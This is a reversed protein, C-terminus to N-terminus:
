VSKELEAAREESIGLSDRLRNLLKRDRPSMEGDSLVEKVSDLYEKEDDSLKPKAMDEIEAARATSINYRRCLRDLFKRATGDIGEGDELCFKVEELYKSEMESLSDAQSQSPKQQANGKGGASSDDKLLSNSRFKIEVKWETNQAEDLQSSYNTHM